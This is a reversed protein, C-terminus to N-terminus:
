LWVWQYGGNLRALTGAQLYAAYDTAALTVGNEVVTDISLIGRARLTISLGGGDHTEGVIQRKLIPEGAVYECVVTAARIYDRIESDRTTTTINLADKAEQLSIIFSPNSPAIDLVDTYAGANAGTAVWRLQHRGAQTTAFTATYNGTSANTVTPLSSTGDPLTVTLVVTTANALNGTSDYNRYTVPVSSGLDFAM